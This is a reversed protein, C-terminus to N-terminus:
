PGGGARAPMLADGGMQARTMAGMLTRTMAGTLTRTMAGTVAGM